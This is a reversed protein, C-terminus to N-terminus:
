PAAPARTVDTDTVREETRSVCFFLCSPNQMVIGTRPAGPNSACGGCTFVLAMLMMEMNARPRRARM